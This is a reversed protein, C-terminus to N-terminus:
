RTIYIQHVRNCKKSFINFKQLNQRCFSFVFSPFTMRQNQSSSPKPLTRRQKLPLIINISTMLHCHLNRNPDCLSKLLYHKTKHIQLIKPFLQFLKSSKRSLSKNPKYIKCIKQSLSKNLERCDKEQNSSKQYLSHLTNLKYSNQPNDMKVHWKRPEIPANTPVHIM